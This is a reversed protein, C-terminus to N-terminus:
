KFHVGPRLVLRDDEVRGLAEAPVFHDRALLGKHIRVWGSHTLREQEEQSLDADALIGSSGVLPPEDRLDGEGEITVTNTDGAQFDKVKGVNKGDADVVHMGERIQTMIDM